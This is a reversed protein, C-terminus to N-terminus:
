GAPVAEPKKEFLVKDGLLHRFEDELDTLADKMEGHMRDFIEVWKGSDGGNKPLDITFVFENFTKVLEMDIRELM